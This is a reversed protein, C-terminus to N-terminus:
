EDFEEALQKLAVLPLRTGNKFEPVIKQIFAVYDKKQKCIPMPASKAGINKSIAKLENINLKQLEIPKDVKQRIVELLEAKPTKHKLNRRTSWTNITDSSSDMNIPVAM